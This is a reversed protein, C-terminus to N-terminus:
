WNLWKKIISHIGEMASGTVAGGVMGVLGCAATGAVTGIGPLAITGGTFGVVAGRVAGSAAGYCDAYVIDKQWSSTGRLTEIVPQALLRQWKDFNADWYQISNKGVSVTAIFIQKELTITLQPVFKTILSDYSLFSRNRTDDFILSYLSAFANKLAQSSFYSTQNYLHMDFADMLTCTTDYNYLPVFDIGSAKLSDQMYASAMQNLQTITLKSLFGKKTRIGKEIQSYIYDLGANHCEGVKSYLSIYYADGSAVSTTVSSYKPPNNEIGLQKSCSLLVIPLFLFLFASAKIPLTVKPSSDQM